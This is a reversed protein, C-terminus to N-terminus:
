NNSKLYFLFYINSLLSIINIIPITIYSKYDINIVKLLIILLCVLINFYLTIKVYLTNIRMFLIFNYLFFILNAYTIGYIPSFLFLIISCIIYQILLNKFKFTYLLLLIIVVLWIENTYSEIIHTNNTLDMVNAYVINSM